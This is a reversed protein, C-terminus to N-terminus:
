GALRAYLRAYADTVVSWDYRARATAQARAGLAARRQPDALLDLVARALADRDGAPVQVGGADERVLDRCGPADTGVVPLGAAMAEILVIGFSELLSPFVFLDAAHLYEILRAPPQERLRALLDAEGAAPMGLEEVAILNDAVGEDRAAAAVRSTGRGVLVWVVDPRASLVRRLAGPVLHMGKKPHVRGVTLLVPRDAPLGLSKRLAARDRGSGRGEPSPQSSPRDESEGVDRGRDGERFSPPSGRGEPSPQSSPRDESEGVDRGRDGERLSPAGLAFRSADVGYPIVAIRGAVEPALALYQERMTEGMAVLADVERLAQRVRRDLAPDRRLGYDLADSVQVDEGPCNLVTPTDRLLGVMRGAPFAITAHWLAYKHRRQERRVFARARRDGLWPARLMLGGLFPPLARVAFPVAQPYGARDLARALRYPVYLTTDVGHNRALHTVLNHVMVEAGGFRPLYSSAVHAVKV